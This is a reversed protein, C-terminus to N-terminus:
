APSNNRLWQLAKERDAFHKARVGKSAAVAEFVETQENPVFDEFHFALWLHPVAATHVGADIVDATDREIEPLRGEVLIRCTRNDECLSKLRSWIEGRDSPDFGYDPPLYVYIHDDRFEIQPGDKM